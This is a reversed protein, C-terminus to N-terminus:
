KKRKYTISMMKEEKGDKIEYMTFEMTDKNTMTGVNKFKAMKGQQNPGEGEETLTKGEKDFDGTM